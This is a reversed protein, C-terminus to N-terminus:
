AAVRPKYLGVSNLPSGIDIMGSELSGSKAKVSRVSNLPSDIDIMGSKM